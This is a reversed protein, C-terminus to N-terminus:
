NIITGDLKLQQGKKMMMIEAQYNLSGEMKRKKEV